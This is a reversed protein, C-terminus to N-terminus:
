LFEILQYGVTVDAGTTGKSATITTTNTLEIKPYIYSTYQTTEGTYTTSFGQYCLISKAVVVASVSATNSSVGTAMNITGSSNSKIVDSEYEIVCFNITMASYDGNARTATVTVANTLTIRVSVDEWDTQSQTGTAISVGNLILLSNASVVETIVTTGSDANVALTIQGYQISKIFASVSSLAEVVGTNSLPEDRKDAPPFISDMSLGM